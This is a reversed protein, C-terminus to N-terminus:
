QVEVTAYDRLMQTLLRIGVGTAGKTIYSRSPKETWATGAIDLHVWPYDAVFAALFGAATIAGGYRGGTNKLDAIESKMMERYEDWLPLQWVREAAAEGAQALRDILAQNNGMMGIAHPGLAVMVAGTLTALDIIAHPQYRQAYHLADALVIRGEADTNLVEVTQGSLTKIIDGPKYATASPMNEAASILGIVHLPMALEGVVHMTGLVAAAGGMDMKMDDMKEAPKISIGGTDFTIGKGVLCITPRGNQAKGHEMVIFRPPQVSGQGVALIGGFGQAQLEELGLVTVRMGFRAGVEQAVEGLHTPTIRNGPGNALDRGLAVGQAIAQGRKLGVNVTKGDDAVLVLSQEVRHKQEPELASKHLLYRYLGLEAGEAWAQASLESTLTENIPLSAAFQPLRLEHAKQAALAAAQRVTDATAKSRKGLGVLLLRRAPLAGRPYLVLSQKFRGHFDDAEVLAAVDPPLQEDEWVCLAALPTAERLIDGQRTTIEM